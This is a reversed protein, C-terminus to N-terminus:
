NDVENQLVGVVRLLRSCDDVEHSIPRFGEVFYVMVDDHSYEDGELNRLPEKSENEAVQM